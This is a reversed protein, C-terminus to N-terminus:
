NQNLEADKALKTVRKIIKVEEKMVIEKADSVEVLEEMEARTLPDDEESHNDQLKDSLSEAIEENILEKKSPMVIKIWVPSRSDYVIPIYNLLYEKTGLKQRLIATLRNFDEVSVEVEYAKIEVEHPNKGQNILMQERYHEVMVKNSPMLRQLEPLRKMSLLTVQGRLSSEVQTRSKVRVVKAVFAVYM